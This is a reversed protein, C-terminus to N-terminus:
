SFQTLGVAGVSELGNTVVCRTWAWTGLVVNMLRVWANDFRVAHSARAPLNV